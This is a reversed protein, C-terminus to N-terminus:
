FTMSTNAPPMTFSNRVANSIDRITATEGQQVRFTKTKRNGRAGVIGTLLGEDYVFLQQSSGSNTVTLNYTPNNNYRRTYAMNPYVFADVPAKTSNNDV